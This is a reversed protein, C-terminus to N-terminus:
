ALSNVMSGPCGSCSRGFDKAEPRGTAARVLRSPPDPRKVKKEAKKAAKDSMATGAVVQRISKM